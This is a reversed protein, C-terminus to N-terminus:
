TLRIDEPDDNEFWAEDEVHFTGVRRYGGKTDSVLILGDETILRMCFLDPLLEDPVDLLGLGIVIPQSNLGSEKASSVEVPELLIMKPHRFRWRPGGPHYQSPQKEGRRVRKLVGRVKLEFSIPPMSRIPDFSTSEFEHDLISIRHNKPDRYKSETRAFHNVTVHGEVSAWSWSPARDNIPRRLSKAWESSYRNTNTTWMMGRVMDDEWLGFMYTCKLTDHVVQAIGALATLKDAPDTMRRRTYLELMSYWRRLVEAKKEALNKQNQGRVDLYPGREQRVSSTGNEFVQRELCRFSIQEQGYLLERRTLISEQFTWARAELPGTEKSPPLCAFVSGLPSTARNGEVPRYYDLRCPAALPRPRNALFGEQSSASCGASLTFCANGYYQAMKLSEVNFDEGGQVICLADIWLYKMDLKRTIEIADKLSQSLEDHDVKKTYNEFTEKTTMAKQPGGWCYSLAVYHGRQGQCIRLVPDKTEVDLVRTPLFPPETDQCTHNENCYRLWRKIMRFRTDEAPNLVTERGNM